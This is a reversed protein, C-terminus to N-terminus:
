GTLELYTFFFGQILDITLGHVIWYDRVPIEGNIIKYGSDYHLFTDIPFVGLNAYYANWLLAFIFILGRTKIKKM